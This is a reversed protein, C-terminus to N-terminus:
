IPYIGSIRLVQVYQVGLDDTVVQALRDDRFVPVVSPDRSPALVTAYVVGEADFYDYRSGDATTVEVIMQGEHGFFVEKIAAQRDVRAMDPPDCQVGPNNERFERYEQTEEAWEAESIPLPSYEREISRLTDGESTVVAIRYDASYALIARGEPAPTAIRRSAFPISFISLMGSPHPCVLSSVPDAGGAVLRLTDQPGEADFRIFSQGQVGPPMRGLVYVEDPGTTYFRVVNSPGTFPIWPYHM